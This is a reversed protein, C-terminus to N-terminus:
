IDGYPYVEHGSGNLILTTIEAATERGADARM